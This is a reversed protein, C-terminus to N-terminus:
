KVSYVFTAKPARLWRETITGRLEAWADKADVFEAKMAEADKKDGKGKARVVRKELEPISTKWKALDVAFCGVDTGNAAKEDKKWTVAGAKMMAGLEISALQSYNRAGGEATYMGRSIHGFAWAIDRLSTQKAENETLLGKEVLWWTFFLASTQAKLEEMTAALPGGFIADDTKGKVAYDHAPGLNHAAEHLVVSILAANPDSSFQNMTATCYLSAVQKELAARSDADTYLNTMVVTRGGKEAVKGWNPLSQGITAGHPNRQDGANITIDIFDPLKFKVDRAKYPPGAMAALAKEMDVKVPELKKQWELSALNIRALQLAFNAKWACPEAYTEDPAVRLYWKSNQPGMAVWAENAPEWDNTRFAKAAAALYTKLAAEDDGFEAAAAELEVAVAEMDTKWAESYPVAKFGKGDAVVASFHGMLDAKNKEKELTACFKPDAQVEAPYLGVARSPPTAFANCLPDKETKPAVCFAGQNRHFLARSLTDAEPIKAGLETTGHQLGYLKEILAAAKVFHPFAKRDADTGASLDTEVLTPKGQELELKLAVSRADTAAPKQMAEYAADFKATFGNADVWEARTTNWPGLLSVLEDPQLTNDGNADSRWFLPLFQEQARLNFDIRGLAAYTKKAPAASGADIVAVPVVPPDVKKDPCGALVVVASLSALTKKIM